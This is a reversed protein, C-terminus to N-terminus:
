SRIQEILLVVGIAFMVVGSLRGVRRAATPRTRLVLRATTGVGLYVVACSSVHILGLAVIQAAVPWAATTDTFQPLLALFLLLVKPNSGSIGAGKVVWRLAPGLVQDPTAQPVPPRASMRIGLWVLYLAGALTLASLLVPQSAMLAGVGAAVVATATLHGILLGSVAPGVARDSLGATIAYAWDAGPTFVFLLSVAWFAVISGIAM